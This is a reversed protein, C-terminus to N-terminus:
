AIVLIQAVVHVGVLVDEVLTAGLYESTNPCHSHSSAACSSRSNAM